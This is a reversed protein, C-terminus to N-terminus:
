EKHAIALALRKLNESWNPALPSTKIVKIKLNSAIIQASKDSFEPQTFIAKVKEKKAEKMLKILAKMKPSKGEVEVALQRLNYRKAFYGWSPHFVMFTAHNPVDKLIEKISSDLVEIEKLFINLNKFYYSKNEKDLLTLTKYINTAIKKTNIPDVWVHPDLSEEHKEKGHHHKEIETQNIDHAVNSIILKHNQNKFKELWIKEFEVGIAFYIKAQSIERMQSPQPDYNHPSSGQKVMISSKVKDGGIKDVFTKLPAISVVINTQALSLASFLLLFLLKKM